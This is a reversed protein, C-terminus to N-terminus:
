YYKESPNLGGVLKPQSLNSPSRTSSRYCLHNAGKKCKPHLDPRSGSIDLVNWCSGVTEWPVIPDLSVMYRVGYAILPYGKLLQNRKHDGDKSMTGLDQPMKDWPEM